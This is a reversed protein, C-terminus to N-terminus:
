AQLAQVVNFVCASIAAYDQVLALSALLVTEMFLTFHCLETSYGSSSM